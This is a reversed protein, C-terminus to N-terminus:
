HIPFRERIAGGPESKEEVSDVEVRKMNNEREDIRVSVYRAVDLYPTFIFSFSYRYGLM